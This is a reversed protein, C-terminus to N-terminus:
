ADGDVDRDANGKDDDSVGWRWKPPEGKAQCIGVLIGASVFIAVLFLVSHEEPNVVIPLISIVAFFCVLVVWGQWTSPIGWGWGYRKAPFWYRKPNKDMMTPPTKQRVVPEGFM